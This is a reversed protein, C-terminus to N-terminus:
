PTKLTIQYSYNYPDCPVVGKVTALQNKQGTRCSLAGNGAPEETWNQLEFRALWQDAMAHVPLGVQLNVQSISKDSLGSTLM